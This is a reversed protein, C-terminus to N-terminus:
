DGGGEDDDDNLLQLVSSGVISHDAGDGVAVRIARDTEVRISRRELRLRVQAGRFTLPVELARWASPLHPDIRLIEGDPRIGAFGFVLAQWVTGMAALHLGSATTGTLDDLDIRAAIRLADLAEGTRGARALLAAHIGPSLSSGHATRPEYSELNPILSGAAVEDPVLHQLMLVDAQKVVQSGRVREAGFLMDAAVPRRPAARAVILPELRWFGEFQEYLGSAPDYGDVIADALMVWHDREAELAVDNLSEVAAAARRLNWRAMVNTFANDDVPEHYEDPGIVSYIHGRGASDVRIRTAWYRATEVLLELGPGREFAVDGTWDVYCAAAWAVDAVIHDERLGTRIPVVNGDRSRKLRPTVDVGVRASEWPFRAGAFGLAAAAIRAPPLRRVRYELMSRAAQPHTAAFFPLIFVDADWFVHGRYGPGTLGRAGVGTEGRDGVNAMLSFMAFRAMRQLEPDGEIVIDAREWRSAWAIRHERALADFGKLEAEELQSVPPEPPRDHGIDYSAIRDLLATGGRSRRHREAVSAIVGGHSGTVRMWARGDTRGSEVMGEDPALLPQGRGCGRPLEARLVATGPTALSSFAIARLRGAETRAEHHLMGTRLDMVRRLTRGAGIDLGDNWIPCALLHEEPGEGTFLGAAVVGPTADPHRALPIGSTGIAGDSMTMQAERVRELTPDVGHVEITWAPDEDLHPVEGEARRQLQDELLQLLAAPGGGLAIVGPPLDNLHPGVSISVARRAEPVLLLSDSGPLGGLPAMEDGALLVLPAGIGRRRLDEFIWRASESKDTLGIEVHKADSTVRPDDLGAEHAASMAISVVEPLGAIGARDLRELMAAELKAIAAKPPSAWAPEPILDIKRRNLRQSVIEAYLGRAALRAVTMEAAADLATEEEPSADRRHVVHPGDTDVRFVESGRNLCLSLLGPGRPRAALQGDVNDVNTGSVIAVDVGAESLRQVLDRVRPADATRDPVATGDWDFVVAEFRRDLEARRTHPWTGTVVTDMAAIM